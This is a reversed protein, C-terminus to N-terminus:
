IGGKKMDKALERLEEPLDLLMEEIKEYNGNELWSEPISHIQRFINFMPELSDAMALVQDVEGQNLSLQRVDREATIENVLKEEPTDMIYNGYYENIILSLQRKTIRM